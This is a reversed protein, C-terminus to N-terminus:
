EDEFRGYVEYQNVKRKACKSLSQRMRHMTSSVAGISRGTIKSIEKMTREEKYWLKAIIAMQEPLAKYCLSLAKSQLDLNQKCIIESEDMMDELVESNFSLKSRKSKTLFAMIQFRAIRFAWTKLEGIEPNFEKKKKCIVLNTEQLVDLANSKSRLTSFIFSFLNKQIKELELDFNFSNAVETKRDEKLTQKM